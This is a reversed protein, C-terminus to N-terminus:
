INVPLGEDVFESGNNQNQDADVSSSPIESKPNRAYEYKNVLWFRIIITLQCWQVGTFLALNM